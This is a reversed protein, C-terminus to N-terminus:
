FTFLTSKGVIWKNKIDYYKSDEWKKKEKTPIM